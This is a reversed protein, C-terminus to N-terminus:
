RVLIIIKIRKALNSGWVNKTPVAMCSTMRGGWTGNIPCPSPISNDCQEIIQTLPRAIKSSFPLPSFLDGEVYGSMLM